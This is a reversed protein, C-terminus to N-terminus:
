CTGPNMSSTTKLGRSLTLRVHVGDRMGNAALTTFLARRVDEKSPVDAGFPPPTNPFPTPPSPIILIHTEQRGDTRGHMYIYVYASKFDLAKASDMLRQLHQELHFVRGDYIRLGEWCADGGQPDRTCPISEDVWDIEGPGGCVVMM